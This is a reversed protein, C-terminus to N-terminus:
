TTEAVGESAQDSSSDHLFLLGQGEAAMGAQLLIFNLM